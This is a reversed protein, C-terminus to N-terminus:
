ENGSNSRSSALCNRSLHNIGGCNFCRISGGDNRASSPQWTQQQQQNSQRALYYRDFGRRQSRGGGRQKQSLVNIREEQENLKDTTFKMHESLTTTLESIATVIPTTAEAVCLAEKSETPQSTDVPSPSLHVKAKRCDQLLQDRSVTNAYPDQCFVFIGRKVNPDIGQLFKRKVAQDMDQAAVNPNAARFLKVLTFMFEEESEDLHQVRQEFLIMKDERTAVTDYVSKLKNKCQTLTQAEGATEELEELIAKPQKDTFLMLLQGQVKPDTKGAILCCREFNKFWESFDQSGTFKELKNFVVNM